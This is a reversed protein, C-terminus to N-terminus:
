DNVYGKFLTGAKIFDRDKTDVYEKTVSNSGVFTGQKVKAGGNIIVGTSIHCNDEVIADHEILAKTNIICNSGISAHANVLADHMIITGEGISVHRSVYARPSIITPLVFGLSKIYEYLQIRISPSKIQGITILVYDCSGRLKELKDDGGLSPYGFLSGGAVNKDVIGVIDYKEEQEIVDICSVCHGGGGLLILKPRM